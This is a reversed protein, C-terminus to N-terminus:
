ANWHARALSFFRLREEQTMEALKLTGQLGPDAAAIGQQISNKLMEKIAAPIGLLPLKLTIAIGEDNMDVDDTNLMGLEVLTCDIEPHRIESLKERIKALKDTDAM